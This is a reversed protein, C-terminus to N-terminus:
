FVFRSNDIDGDPASFDRSQRSCAPLSFHAPHSPISRKAPCPQRAYANRFRATGVPFATFGTRARRRFATNGRHNLHREILQRRRDITLRNLELNAFPLNVM